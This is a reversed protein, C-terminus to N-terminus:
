VGVAAADAAAHLCRLLFELRRHRLSGPVVLLELRRLFALLGALGLFSKEIARGRAEGVEAFSAGPTPAAGTSPDSVHVPVSLLECLVELVAHPLTHQLVASVRSLPPSAAAASTAEDDASDPISSLTAATAAAATTAETDSEPDSGPAYFPMLLLDALCEGLAERLRTLSSPEGDHQLARWGTRYVRAGFLTTVHHRRQWSGPMLTLTQGGGSALSSSSPVVCLFLQQVYGLWLRLLGIPQCHDAFVCRHVVTMFARFVVVDDSTCFTAARGVFEGTDDERAMRQQEELAARLRYFARSLTRYAGVIILLGYADAAVTFAATVRAHRDLAASIYGEVADDGLGAASVDDATSAERRQVGGDGDTGGGSRLQRLFADHQRLQADIQACVAPLDVMAAAGDSVRHGAGSTTPSSPCHVAGSLSWMDHTAAPGSRVDRLASTVGDATRTGGDFWRAMRAVSGSTSPQRGYRACLATHRQVTVYLEEVSWPLTLLGSALLLLLDQAAAPDAWAPWAGADGTVSDTGKEEKGGDDDNHQKPPRSRNDEVTSYSARHSLASLLPLLGTVLLAEDERAMRGRRELQLLVGHSLLMWLRTDRRLSAVCASDLEAGATGRMVVHRLHQILRTFLRQREPQLVFFGSADYLSTFNSAVSDLPPVSCSTDLASPASATIPGAIRAGAADDFVVEEFLQLTGAYGGLTDDDRGHWAGEGDSNSRHANAPSAFLLDMEEASQLVLEMRTATDRLMASLQAGKRRWRAHHQEKFAAVAAEDDDGTATTFASSTGDSSSMWGVEEPEQTRLLVPYLHWLFAGARGRFERPDVMPPTSSVGRLSDALFQQFAAQLGVVNDTVSRLTAPVMSTSSQLGGNRLALVAQGYLRLSDRVEHFFVQLAESMLRRYLVTTSGEDNAEARLVDTMAAAVYATSSQCWLWHTESLAHLKLRATRRAKRWQAQQAASMRRVGAAELAEAELADAVADNTYLGGSYFGFLVSWCRWLQVAYQRAAATIVLRLAALTDAVAPVDVDERPQQTTWPEARPRKRSPQQSEQSGEDEEEEGAAERGPHVDRRPTESVPAEVVVASRTLMSRLPGDSGLEAATRTRAWEAWAARAHGLLRLVFVTLLTFGGGSLVTFSQAARALTGSFCLLESIHRRQRRQVKRLATRAAEAKLEAAADASSLSSASPSSVAAPGEKKLNSRHDHRRDSGGEAVPLQRVQHLAEEAFSAEKRLAERMGCTCLRQLLHHMTLAGEVWQPSATPFSSSPASPPPPPMPGASAAAYVADNSNNNLAHMRLQTWQTYMPVLLHRLWLLPADQMLHRALVEVASGEEEETGQVARTTRHRRLASSSALGSLLPDGSRSESTPPERLPLSLHLAELAQQMEVSLDAPSPPSEEGDVAEAGGATNAQASTVAEFAAPGGHNVSPPMQPTVGGGRVRGGGGGSGEEEEEEDEQEEEDAEADAHRTWLEEMWRPYDAGWLLATVESVFRAHLAADTRTAATRDNTPTTEGSPSAAASEAVAAWLLPLEEATEDAGDDMAVRRLQSFISSSSSSSTPSAPPSCRSPTTSASGDSTTSTSSLSTLSHACDEDNNGGDDVVCPRASVGAVEM